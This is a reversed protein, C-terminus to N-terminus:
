IYRTTRIYKHIKTADNSRLYCAPLPFPFAIDISTQGQILVGVAGARSAEPAGLGGECLVIKDKVLKDDLSNISCNRCNQFLTM